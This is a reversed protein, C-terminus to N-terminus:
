LGFSEIFIPDSWALALIAAMAVALLGGTAVLARAVRGDGTSARILVVSRDVLLVGAGLLLFPRVTISPDFASAIGAGVVAIIASVMVPVPARVFGVLRSVGDRRAVRIASAVALLLLLSVGGAAGRELGVRRGEREVKQALAPAVARFEVAVRRAAALDGTATYSDVLLALALARTNRDNSPDSVVALAAPIARAPDRVRRAFGEAVLMLTEARVRGAPFTRAADYLAGLVVPDSAAVPDRRVRELRILPEFGGESHARLDDARTRARLAFSASPRLALARDYATLARGLDLRSEAEQGERYADESEDARASAPASILAGLVVIALGRRM